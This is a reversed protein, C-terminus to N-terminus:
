DTVYPYDNTVLNRDLPSQESYSLVSSDICYTSISPFLQFLCYEIAREWQYIGDLNSLYDSEKIIAVISITSKKTDIQARVDSQIRLKEALISKYAKMFPCIRIYLAKSVTQQHQETTDTMGEIYGHTRAESLLFEIFKEQTPVAVSDNQMATSNM